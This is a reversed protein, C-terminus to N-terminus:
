ESEEPEQDVPYEGTLFFIITEPLGVDGCVIAPHAGPGANTADPVVQFAQGDIIDDDILRVTVASYAHAM